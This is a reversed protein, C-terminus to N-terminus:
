DIGLPWARGVGSGLPLLCLFYFPSLESKHVELNPGGCYQPRGPSSLGEAPGQPLPAFVQLPQCELCSEKEEMMGM